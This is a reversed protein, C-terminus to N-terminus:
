IPGLHAVIFIGGLEFVEPPSCIGINKLGDSDISVNGHSRAFYEGAPSLVYIVLCNKTDM